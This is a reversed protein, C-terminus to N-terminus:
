VADEIETHRAKHRVEDWPIFDIEQSIQPPCSATRYHGKAFV